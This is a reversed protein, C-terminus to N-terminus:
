PLYPGPGDARPLRSDAVELLTRMKETIRAHLETTSQHLAALETLGMHDILPPEPPEPPVNDGHERDYDIEDLVGKYHKEIISQSNGAKRACWETKRGSVLWNTIACARLLRFQLGALHAEDPATFTAEVCPKWWKERWNSLEMPAGSEQTFLYDDASMAGERDLRELLRRFMPVDAAEVEVYRVEGAPRHKLPVEQRERGGSDLPEYVEACRVVIRPRPRDLDLWDRRMAITEEPRLAYHATVVVMEVFREGSIVCPKGDADRAERTLAAMTRAIRDVQLRNALTKTTYNPSASHVVVDDVEAQWALYPVRRRLAADNLASKVNRAFEEITRGDAEEVRMLPVPPLVPEREERRALLEEKEVAASWRSAATRNARRTRLNTVARLEVLDILDAASLGLDPDDLRLSAGPQLGLAELRPDGERYRANAALFELHGEYGKTTRARRRENGRTKKNTRLWALRWRALDEVDVIPAVASGAKPAGPCVAPLALGAYATPGPRLVPLPEPLAAATGGTSLGNDEAPGTDPSLRAGTPVEHGGVFHLRGLTALPSAPVETAPQLPRFRDDAEWNQEHAVQLLKQFTAAGRVADHGKFTAFRSAGDLRYCVLAKAVDGAADAALKRGAKDFLQVSSSASWRRGPERRSAPSM